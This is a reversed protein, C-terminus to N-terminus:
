GTLEADDDGVPPPGVTEEVKPVADPDAGFATSIATTLAEAVKPDSLASMPLTQGPMAHALMRRVSQLPYRVSIEELGEWVSDYPEQGARELRANVKDLLDDLDLELGILADDDFRIEYREGDLVLPTPPNTIARRRDPADKPAM